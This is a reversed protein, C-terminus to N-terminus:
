KKPQKWVFHGTDRLNGALKSQPKAADPCDKNADNLLNAVPVEKVKNPM